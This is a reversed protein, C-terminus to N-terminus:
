NLPKMNEHRWEWYYRDRLKVQSGWGLSTTVEKRFGDNALYIWANVTVNRRPGKDNTPWFQDELAIYRRKRTYSHGNDMIADMRMVQHIDMVYAEGWVRTQLKEKTNSTQWTIPFTPCVKMLYNGEVTWCDGLYPCNEIQRESPFGAKFSDWVMVVHNKYPEVEDKLDPTFVARAALNQMTESPISL